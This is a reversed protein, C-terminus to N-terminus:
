MTAFRKDAREDSYEEEHSAGADGHMKEAIDSQIEEFADIFRDGDAIYPIALTGTGTGNIVVTSYGIFRGIVPERLFAAESNELQLQVWDRWLFGHRLVIKKNTLLLRTESWEVVAAYTPWLSVLLIGGGLIPHVLLGALLAALLLVVPGALVFPHVQCQYLVKEDDSLLTKMSKLM